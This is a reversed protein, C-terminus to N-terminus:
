KAYFNMYPEISVIGYFPSKIGEYEDSFLKPIAKMLFGKESSGDDWAHPDECDQKELHQKVIESVIHVDFDFPYKNWGKKDNGWGLCYKGDKTIQYTIRDKGIGYMDIAFKITMQLQEMTGSVEFVQESSFM